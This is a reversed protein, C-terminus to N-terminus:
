RAAGLAAALALLPPLCAALARRQQGIARVTDGARPSRASANLAYVGPKRLRVDLALAMAGM